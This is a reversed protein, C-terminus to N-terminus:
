DYLGCDVLQFGFGNLYKWVAESHEVDGTLWSCENFFSNFLQKRSDKLGVFDNEISKILDKKFKEAKEDWDDADCNTRYIKNFLFLCGDGFHIVDEFPIDNIHEIIEKKM